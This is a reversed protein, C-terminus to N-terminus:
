RRCRDFPVVNVSLPASDILAASTGFIMRRMLMAAASQTVMPLMATASTPGSPLTMLRRRADIQVGAQHRRNAARASRHWYTPTIASPRRTAPCSQRQWGFLCRAPMARRRGAFM